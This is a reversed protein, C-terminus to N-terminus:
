VDSSMVLTAASSPTLLVLTSATTPSPVRPERRAPCAAGLYVPQVMGTTISPAASASTAAQVTCATPCHVTQWYALVLSWSTARAAPSVPRPLTSTAHLAARPVPTAPSSLPTSTTALPV